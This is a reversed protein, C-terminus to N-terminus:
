LCENGKKSFFVDANVFFGNVMMQISWIRSVAIIGELGRNGVYVELSPTDVTGRKLGTANYLLTTM